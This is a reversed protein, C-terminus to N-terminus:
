LAEQVAGLADYLAPRGNFPMKCGRNKWYVMFGEDALLKNLRRKAQKRKVPVTLTSVRDEAYVTDSYERYHGPSDITFSSGDLYQRPTVTVLLGRLTTFPDKFHELTEQAVLIDARELYESPFVNPLCLEKAIDRCWDRHQQVASHSIITAMPFEMALRMATLGMGGHFDIVKSPKVFLSQRILFDVDQGSRVAWSNLLLYVYAPDSYFSMDVEGSGYWTEMMSKELDSVVGALEHNPVVGGLAVTQAAEWIKRRPSIERPM